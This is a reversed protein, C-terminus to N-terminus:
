SLAEEYRDIWMAWTNTSGWIYAKIMDDRLHDRNHAYEDIKRAIRRPDLDYTQVRGYPTNHVRGKRAPLRPGPWMSNPTCDPMIVACGVRCAEQAPLCLGGYKRPLVVVHQAAYMSWREPVGDPYLHLDVTGPVRPPKPLWHDQGVVTVEVKSGIYQLSEMFNITGNRDGAAAHGAVHLVRLPGMDPREAAVPCWDPTPVPLIQGPPLENIMWETPWVWRTPHPFGFRDHTYFEPNGQVVTRVGADQAWEAIRWDMLTEVAFLVDIDRLLKRAKREDVVRDPGVSVFDVNHFNYRSTDEPWLPDNLCAVLTRHPKMHKYFEYTQYAIGRNDCRALLGIRM